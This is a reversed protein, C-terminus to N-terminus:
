ILEQIRREAYKKVTPDVKENQILERMSELSRRERIEVLLDILSIQVLPSTQQLLSAVLADRIGPRDSFVFLADVAALRVNVNPDSNLTNLLTELLSETPHNVQTTYQIGRLREGSYSQNMLSLSVIQRMDSIEQRLAAMEGNRHEGVQTRHGVFLGVILFGLAYALQLAPRRPWLSALLSEIRRFLSVKEREGRKESELMAYFRSRLAPSPEKEPLHDLGRWVTEMRELQLRCTGCGALHDELAKKEAAKIEGSLYDTFREQIRECTM